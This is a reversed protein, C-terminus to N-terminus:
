KSWRTIFLAAREEGTVESPVSTTKIEEYCVQNRGKAKAERLYGDARKIFDDVTLKERINFIDVGFSATLTIEQGDFGIPSSALISRLREATLVAQPLRTGPLIVAFEEGGYRCLIDFRRLTKRWIKAAWKLAENGSQHGYTDNVRKFYDLDIIIIGTPLGTRRTREMERELAGILYRFNYLGTLPDTQSLEALAKCEQKLRELEAFFPCDHAGLPCSESKNLRQGLTSGELVFSSAQYIERLCNTRFLKISSSLIWLLWGGERM